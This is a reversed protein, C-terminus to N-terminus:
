ENCIDFLNIGFWTCQGVMRQLLSGNKDETMKKIADAYSEGIEPHHKRVSGIMYGKGLCFGIEAVAYVGVLKVITKLM